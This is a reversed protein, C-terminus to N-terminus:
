PAAVVFGVTPKSDFVAGEQTTWVQLRSVAYTRSGNWNVPDREFVLSASTEGTWNFSFLNKEGSKRRSGFGSFGCSSKELTEYAVGSSWNSVGCVQRQTRVAALAPDHFIELLSEITTRYAGTAPEFSLSGIEVYQISPTECAADSHFVTVSVKYKNESFTFEVKESASFVVHCVPDNKWVGLFPRPPKKENVPAATAGIAPTPQEFAPPSTENEAVPNALINDSQVTPKPSALRSSGQTESRTTPDFSEKDTPAQTKTSASCGMLFAFSLFFLQVKM